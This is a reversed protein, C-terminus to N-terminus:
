GRGGGDAEALRRLAEAWSPPCNAGPDTWRVSDFARMKPALQEMATLHPRERIFRFLAREEDWVSLTWYRRSLPKAMLSFGVLGQPGSRLQETVKNAMSLFQFTTLASRLHFFTALYLYPRDREAESLSRWPVPRM